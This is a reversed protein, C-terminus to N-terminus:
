NRVHYDGCTACLEEFRLNETAEVTAPKAFEFNGIVLEKRATKAGAHVNDVGTPVIVRHITMDSFEDHLEPVDSNSLLFKGKIPKIAAGESPRTNSSWRLSKPRIIM